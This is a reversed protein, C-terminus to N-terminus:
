VRWFLIQCILREPNETQIDNTGPSANLHMMYSQATASLQQGIRKRRLIVILYKNFYKILLSLLGRRKDIKAPIWRGVVHATHICFVFLCAFLHIFGRVSSFCPSKRNKLIQHHSKHHPRKFAQFELIDKEASFKQFMNNEHKAVLPQQKYKYHFWACM